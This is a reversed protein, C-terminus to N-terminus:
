RRSRLRVTRVAKSLAPTGAPCTGRMNCSRKRSPWSSRSLPESTESSRNFGHPHMRIAASSVLLLSAMKAVLKKGLRATGLSTLVDGILDRATGAGMHTAM